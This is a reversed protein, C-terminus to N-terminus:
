ILRPARRGQRSLESVGAALGAVVMFEQVVPTVRFAWELLGGLHLALCGLAWGALLLGELRGGSWAYRLMRWEFRALILLFLGLGAYGLEAATLKYIHHCVGAQPENKMVTIGTRYETNNTLVDSFNNLGIGGPHDKLMADAATNFEERAQESAKPANKIRNLFADSAKVMGGLMLVFVAASVTMARLSRGRTNAVMLGLILGAGTLATGARSFTAVVAFTMGLVAVITAGVQWPRLRRDALAWILLSPIILNLFLPVSNSHDFPGQIRYLGELYKQKLALTTLIGATIMFGYWIRDLAAGALMMNSVCWYILFLRVMKFLTFAGYLPTASSFVSVVSLAFFAALVWTNYPVWQIRDRHKTVLVVILSWCILDALTIEFGRDPGRYTEFSIFNISTMKGFSAAAILLSLLWGRVQAHASAAAIMLPVGGIAMLGFVVYKM